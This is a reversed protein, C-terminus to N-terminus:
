NVLFVRMKTYYLIAVTKAEINEFYQIAKQLFSSSLDDTIIESLLCIDTENLIFHKFGSLKDVM